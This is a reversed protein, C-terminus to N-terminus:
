RKREAAAAQEASNLAAQAAQRRTEAANYAATAKLSDQEAATAQSALSTAQNRKNVADSQAADVQAKTIGSPYFRYGWHDHEKNSGIIEWKDTG